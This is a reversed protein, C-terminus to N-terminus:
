GSKKATPHQVVDHSRDLHKIPIDSLHWLDIDGLIIEMAVYCLDFVDAPLDEVLEVVFRVLSIFSQSIANM